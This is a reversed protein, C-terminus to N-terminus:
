SRGCVIVQKKATPTFPSRDFDGYRDHIALNAGALLREIQSPFYQRMRYSIRTIPVAAGGCRDREGLALDFTLIQSTADYITSERLELPRGRDDNVARVCRDAYTNNLYDLNPQYIDFAFVGADSLLPRVTEFFRGLEVDSTLCQMTNFCCVVLDFRGSVPPSRMDGPVWAIRQDRSRAIELMGASEDVGVVRADPTHRTLEAALAITVTGTGCALELLSRAGPQILSRYFEIMPARDGQLLDYYRAWEDYLAAHAPENM